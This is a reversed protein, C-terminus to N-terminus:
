DTEVTEADSIVGYFHNNEVDNYKKIFGNEIKPYDIEQNRKISFQKQFYNNKSFSTV